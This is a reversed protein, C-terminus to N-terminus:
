RGVSLVKWANSHKLTDVYIISERQCGLLESGLASLYSIDGIEICAQEPSVVRLNMIQHTALNKLVVRCGVRIKNELRSAHTQSFEFRNLFISLKLPNMLIQYSADKLACNLFCILSKKFCYICNLM